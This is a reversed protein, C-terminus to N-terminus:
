HEGGSRRAHPHGREAVFHQYRAVVKTLAPWPSSPSAVQQVAEFGAARLERAAEVPSSLRVLSRSRGLLEAVAVAQRPPLLQVFPLGSFQDQPNWRNPNRVILVGGPRLVRHTESLAAARASREVVYCLSNNQVVLDFSRDILDLAEM